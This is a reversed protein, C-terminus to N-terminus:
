GQSCIVVYVKDDDGNWPWDLISDAYEKILFTEYEKSYYDPYVHYVYDRVSKTPEVYECDDEDSNDRKWRPDKGFKLENDIRIAYEEISMMEIPYQGDGENYAIVDDVLAYGKKIYDSDGLEKLPLYSYYYSDFSGDITFDKKFDEGMHEEDLANFSRYLDSAFSRSRTFICKIEGDKNYPGATHVINDKDIYGFYYTYYWSM